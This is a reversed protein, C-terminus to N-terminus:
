QTTSTKVEAKSRTTKPSQTQTNDAKIIFRLAMIIFVISATVSYFGFIYPNTSDTGILLGHCLSIFWAPLVLFHIGKWINRKLAKILLDSTFIVIFFLYFAMTGLGSAVSEYETSFPVLLDSVNYTQYKDIMLLIMHGILAFFGGWSAYIHTHYIFNKQSKVYASKRLLGFAVAITFYFYALFGLIRIWEWTGGLM